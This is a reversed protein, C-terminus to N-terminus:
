ISQPLITRHLEFDDDAAFFIPAVGDGHRSKRSAVGSAVTQFFCPGVDPFGGFAPEVCVIAAIRKLAACRGSLLNFLDLQSLRRRCFVKAFREFPFTPFQNANLAAMVDICIGVTRDGSGNGNVAVAGQRRPRLVADHLSRTERFRIQSPDCGASVVVPNVSASTDARQPM